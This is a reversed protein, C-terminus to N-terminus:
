EVAVSMGHSGVTSNQTLKGSIRIKFYLRDVCGMDTSRLKTKKQLEEAAGEIRVRKMNFADMGDCSRLQYGNM